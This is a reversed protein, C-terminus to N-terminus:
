AGVIVGDCFVSRMYVSYMIHFTHESRLTDGGGKCGGVIM